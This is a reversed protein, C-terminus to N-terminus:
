REHKKGRNVYYKVLSVSSGALAVIGQRPMNPTTKLAELIAIKKSTFRERGRPQTKLENKKMFNYISKKNVNLRDAVGGAGHLKDYLDAIMSFGDPYKTGYEKNHLMSLFNYDITM